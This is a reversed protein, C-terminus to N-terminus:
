SCNQQIGERVKRLSHVISQFTPSSEIKKPDLSLEQFLRSKWCACGTSHQPEVAQTLLTFQRPQSTAMQLTLINNFGQFFTGPLQSM